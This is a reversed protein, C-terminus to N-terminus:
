ACLTTKVDMQREYREFFRQFSMWIVNTNFSNINSFLTAEVDTHRGYRKFFRQISTLIVDKLFM